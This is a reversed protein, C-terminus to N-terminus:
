EEAAFPVGDQCIQRREHPAGPILCRNTDSRNFWPNVAESQSQVSDARDDLVCNFISSSEM